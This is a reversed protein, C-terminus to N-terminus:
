LAEREDAIIGGVVAAAQAGISQTFQVQAQELFLYLAVQVILGVVCLLIAMGAEDISIGGRRGGPFALSWTGGQRGHMISGLMCMQNGLQDGAEISAVSFVGDGVDLGILSAIGLALAVDLLNFM